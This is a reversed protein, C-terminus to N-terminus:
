LELFNLWVTADAGLMVCSINFTSDKMKLLFQLNFTHVLWKIFQLTM